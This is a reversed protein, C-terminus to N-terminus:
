SLLTHRRGVPIEPELIFATVARPQGTLAHGWVRKAELYCLSASRNTGIMVAMSDFAGHMGKTM